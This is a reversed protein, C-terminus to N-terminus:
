ACNTAFTFLEPGRQETNDVCLRAAKTCPVSGARADALPACVQLVCVVYPTKERARQKIDIMVFEEPLRGQYDTLMEKVMGEKSQGTSGGSGSDGGDGGGGQLAFIAEFLNECVSILLGIEANTHLGFLVPSEAPLGNEVYLKYDNYTGELLPKYGRTLEFSAQACHM